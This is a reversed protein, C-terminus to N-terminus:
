DVTIHSVAHLVNESLMDTQLHLTSLHQQFSSCSHISKVLIVIGWQVISSTIATLFTNLEEKLIPSSHLDRTKEQGM